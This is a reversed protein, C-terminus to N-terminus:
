QGGAAPGQSCEMTSAPVIDAMSFLGKRHGTLGSRSYERERYYYGALSLDGGTSLRIQADFCKRRVASRFLGSKSPQTGRRHAASHGTTTGAQAAAVRRALKRRLEDRSEDEVLQCTM